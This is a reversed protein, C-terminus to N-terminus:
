NLREQEANNAQRFSGDLNVPVHQVVDSAPNDIHLAIYLHAYGIKTCAGVGELAEAKNLLSSNGDTHTSSM